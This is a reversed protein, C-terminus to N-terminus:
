ELEFILDFRAIHFVDRIHGSVNRLRLTQGNAKLRKQTAMLIGLGASSIYSLDKFDVSTTAAVRDFVAKAKDVQAGDFRGSLLVEGSQNLRIDFM